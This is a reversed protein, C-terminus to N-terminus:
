RILQIEENKKGLDDKMVSEVNKMDKMCNTFKANKLM